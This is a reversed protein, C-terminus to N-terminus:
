RFTSGPNSLRCLSGRKPSRSQRIPRDDHSTCQKLTEKALDYARNRRPRRELASGKLFNDQPPVSVSIM